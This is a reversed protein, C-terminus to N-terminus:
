PAVVRDKPTLVLTGEPGSLLLDGFRFGFRDVQDLRELFRRERGMAAEPCAMRTAAAPSVAIAGRGLDKVDAFFRNCGAFGAIRGAEFRLEIPTEGAGPSEGLIWDSGGLDAASLPGLEETGSQWLNGDALRYIRRVKHSPFAMPDGEGAVVLDVIIQGDLIALDRVQVRDGLRATGLSRPGGDGLSMVALHVFSGSGGLDEVLLVAADPSGDMDLDGRGRLEEVLILTPRSAGGPVFPEGEYLGGSLTVPEAFIGAYTANALADGAPQSRGRQEVPAPTSTAPPAVAQQTQEWTRQSFDKTDEWARASDRKVREWASESFDKTAEWGEKSHRKTTEWARRAADSTAKGVADAAERVEEGANSWPDDQQAALVPAHVLLTCLGLRTWTSKM